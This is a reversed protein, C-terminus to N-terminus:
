RGRNRLVKAIWSLPFINYMRARPPNYAPSIDSIGTLNRSPTSFFASPQQVSPLLTPLGLEPDVEPKQVSTHQMTYDNQPYDGTARRSLSLRSVSFSPRGAPLQYKPKPLHRLLPYLDEYYIGEEGRLYHKVAVSCLFKVWLGSFM